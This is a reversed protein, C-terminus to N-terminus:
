TCKLGAVVIGYPTGKNKPDIMLTYTCLLHGETQKGAMPGAAYYVFQNCPMSINVYDANPPRDIKIAAMNVNVRQTIKEDEIKKMVPEVVEQSFQTRFPERFFTLAMNHQERASAYNFSGILNMIHIAFNLYDRSSIQNAAYTGPTLQSPVRLITDGRFFWLIALILAVTFVVLQALAFTRWFAALRKETRWIQKDEAM